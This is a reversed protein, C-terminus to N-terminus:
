TTAAETRCPCAEIDLDTALAELRMAAPLQPAQPEALSVPALQDLRAAVGYSVRTIRVARSRRRHFERSLGSCMLKRWCSSATFDFWVTSILHYCSAEKRFDM